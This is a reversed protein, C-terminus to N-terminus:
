DEQPTLYYGSLYELAEAEDRFKPEGSPIWLVENGSVVIMGDSKKDTITGKRIENNYIFYIENM